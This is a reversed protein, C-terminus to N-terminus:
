ARTEGLAVAEQMIQDLASIDTAVRDSRKQALQGNELLARLANRARSVRSKITGVACDCLAAVDECTMGGAGIMILAERQDAPLQQMARVLDALAVHADQQAPVALRLDADFDNWEGAFRARRNLSFFVNRLIVHTWARMNTGPVFRARAVWAKALTEQVLDDATDANGALSRAYARLPPVAAMLATRFVTDLAREDTASHPPTFSADQDVFFM